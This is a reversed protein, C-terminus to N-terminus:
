NWPEEKRNVPRPQAYTIRCLSWDLTSGKVADALSWLNGTVRLEVGRRFLEAFLDPVIHKEKPIQPTKAVYYGAAKDQLAFGAPDLEYLYLTARGVAAFWGAEIALAHAAEPDTFFRHRDADTTQRNIHWGVRPCNRPTLFNSLHAEDIAWVLGVDPDLDKRTPLRPVFESINEEESVHFLRM